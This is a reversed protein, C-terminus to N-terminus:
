DLYRKVGQSVVAGIAGSFLITRLDHLQSETLWGCTPIFLHFVYILAGIWFIVFALMVSGPVLWALVRHVAMKVSHKASEIEDLRAYEKSEKGANSDSAAEAELTQSPPKVAM